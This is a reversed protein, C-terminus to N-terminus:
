KYIDQINMGYCKFYSIELGLREALKKECQCGNSKEWDGAMVIGDCKKLLELCQGLIEDYDWESVLTAYQFADLPNIFISKQNDQKLSATMARAEQRNWEQEDQTGTFPHSVYYIKNKHM